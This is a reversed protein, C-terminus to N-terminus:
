ICLQTNTNNRYFPNEVQSQAGGEAARCLKDGVSPLSPPGDSSGQEEQGDQGLTTTTPTEDKANTENDAKTSPKSIAEKYNQIPRLLRRNRTILRGSGDVKIM